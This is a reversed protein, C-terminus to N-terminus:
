NRKLYFHLKVLFLIWESKELILAMLLLELVELELILTVVVQTPTNKLRYLDSTFKLHFSSYTSARTM